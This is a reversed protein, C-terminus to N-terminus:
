VVIDELEAEQDATGTAEHAEIEQPDAVHRLILTALAGFFAAPLWFVLFPEWAPLVMAQFFNYSAEIRVYENVAFSVVMYATAGVLAPLLMTVPGVLLSRRQQHRMVVGAVRGCFAAAVIFVIGSILFPYHERQAQDGTYHSGMFFCAGTIVFVVYQFAAATGFAIAGLRKSEYIRTPNELKRAAIQKEAELEAASKPAFAAREDAERGQQQLVFGAFLGMVICFLWLFFSAALAPVILIRVPHLAADRGWGPDLTAITLWAALPGLISPLVFTLPGIWGYGWRRVQILRGAWRGIGWSMVVFVVIGIAGSILISMADRSDMMWDVYSNATFYSYVKLHRYNFVSAFLVILLFITALLAAAQFFILGGARRSRRLRDNESLLSGQAM